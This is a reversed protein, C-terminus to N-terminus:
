DSHRLATVKRTNADLLREFAAFCDPDLHTGVEARMMSLAEESSMAERYPRETTLADFMDCVAIIRSEIPIADGRLGDPYGSGDVWEHHHRIALAAEWLLNLRSALQYGALAHQEVMMRESDTLAGPKNLVQDPIAIKGVDHFLAGLSIVRMRAPPLDLGRAIGLAHEIVRHTHEADEGHGFGTTEVLTDAAEGLHDALDDSPAWEIISEVAVVVRRGRSYGSLVGGAAVGGAVAVLVSANWAAWTGTDAFTAAVGAGACLGLGLGAPVYLRPAKRAGVAAAAAAAAAVVAGALGLAVRAPDRGPHVDLVTVVVAALGPVVAVGLVVQSHRAAISVFRAFPKSAVSFALGAALCLPALSMAALGQDAGHVCRPLSALLVIGGAFVVTSGVVVARGDRVDGASVTLWSGLGSAALALVSTLAWWGRGPTGDSRGGLFGLVVGCGLVLLILAPWLLDSRAVTSAHDGAAADTTTTAELAALTEAADAVIGLESRDTM